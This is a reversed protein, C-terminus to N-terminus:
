TPLAWPVNTFAIRISIHSKMTERPPPCAVMLTSASRRPMPGASITLVSSSLIRFARGWIKRLYTLWAGGPATFGLGPAPGPLIPYPPFCHCGVSLFYGPEPWYGARLANLHRIAQHLQHIASVFLKSAVAVMVHAALPDRSPVRDVAELGVYGVVPYVAHAVPMGAVAGDFRLLPFCLATTVPSGGERTQCGGAFPM